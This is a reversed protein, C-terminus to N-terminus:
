RDNQNRFFETLNIRVGFHITPFLTTFRTRREEAVVHGSEVIPFFNIEKLRLKGGIGVFNTLWTRKVSKINYFLQMGYDRNRQTYKSSYSADLLHDAMKNASIDQYMISIRMFETRKINFGFDANLRINFGRFGLIKVQGFGLVDGEYKYSKILSYVLGPEISLTIKSSLIREYGISLQNLMPRYILNNKKETNQGAAYNAILIILFLLHKLRM